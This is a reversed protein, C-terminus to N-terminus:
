GGAIPPLVSIEDNDELKTELGDLFKIAKGNKLIFIDQKLKQNSEFFLDRTNYQQIFVELLDNISCGEPINVYHIATNNFKDILFAYFRVKIKM